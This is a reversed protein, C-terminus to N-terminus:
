GALLIRGDNFVHRKWVDKQPFQHLLVLGFGSLCGSVVTSSGLGRRLYFGCNM